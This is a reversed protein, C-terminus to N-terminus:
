TKNYEPPKGGYNVVSPPADKDITPLGAFFSFVTKTVSSTLDPGGLFGHLDLPLKETSCYSGGFWDQKTTSSGVM